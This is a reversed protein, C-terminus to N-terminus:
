VSSAPTWRPKASPLYPHTYTPTATLAAGSRLWNWRREAQSSPSTSPCSGVAAPPRHGSPWPHHHPSSAVLALLSPPMETCFSPTTAAPFCSNWHGTPLSFFNHTYGQGSPECHSVTSSRQLGPHTGACPQSEQPCIDIGM